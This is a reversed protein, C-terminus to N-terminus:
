RPSTKISGWDCLVRPAFARVRMLGLLLQLDHLWGGALAVVSIANLEKDRFARDFGM